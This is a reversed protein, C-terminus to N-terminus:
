KEKKFLDVGISDLVSEIEGLKDLLGKAEKLLWNADEKKIIKLYQFNKDEWKYLSPYKDKLHEYLVNQLKPNSCSFFGKQELEDVFSYFIANKEM